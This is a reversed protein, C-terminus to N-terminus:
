QKVREREQAFVAKWRKDEGRTGEDASFSVFSEKTVFRLGEDGIQWRVAVGMTWVQGLGRGFPLDILATSRTM